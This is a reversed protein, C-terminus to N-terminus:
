LKLNGSSTESEAGPWNIGKFIQRRCQKNFVDPRYDRGLSMAAAAHFRPMEREAYTPGYRRPWDDADLKTSM